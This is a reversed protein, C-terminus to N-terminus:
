LFHWPQEYLPEHIIEWHGAVTSFYSPNLSPISVFDNEPLPVRGPARRGPARDPVPNPQRPARNRLIGEEGYHAFSCTLIGKRSCQEGWYCRRTRFLDPHYDKEIKGHANQCMAGDRCRKETFYNCLAASYGYRNPDRRKLEGTHLFPCTSRGCTTPCPTIKYNNILWDRAALIIDHIVDQPLSRERAWDIATKGDSSKYEVFVKKRSLLLRIVGISGHMCAVMFPTRSVGEHDHVADVDMGLSLDMELSLVKEFFELDDNEAARLLIHKDNSM